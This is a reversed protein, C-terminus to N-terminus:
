TLHVLCEATSQFAPLALFHFSTSTTSYNVRSVDYGYVVDCQKKKKRKKKKAFFCFPFFSFVSDSTCATLARKKQQRKYQKINARQRGCLVFFGGVFM